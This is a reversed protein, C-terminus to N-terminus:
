QQNIHLFQEGSANPDLIGEVLAKRKADKEKKASAAGSDQLACSCFKRYSLISKNVDCYNVQYAYLLVSESLSDQLFVTIFSYTKSASKSTKNNTEPIPM